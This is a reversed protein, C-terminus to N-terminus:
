LVEQLVPLVPVEKQQLYFIVMLTYAYSSLSGRSADGINCLKVFAKMVYGLVKCRMDILSYCRLMSTNRQAQFSNFKGCTISASHGFPHLTQRQLLLSPSSESSPWVLSKLIAIWLKGARRDANFPCRLSCASLNVQQAMPFLSSRSKGMKSHWAPPRYSRLSSSIVSVDSERSLLIFILYVYMLLWFLCCLYWQSSVLLNYLSIDGELGSERHFFKVIPVKATTIPLINYFEKNKRLQKAVEEIVKVCDLKQFLVIFFSLNFLRKGRCCTM